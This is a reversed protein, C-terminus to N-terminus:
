AHSFSDEHCTCKEGNKPLDRPIWDPFPAMPNDLCSLLGSHFKRVLSPDPKAYFCGCIPECYQEHVNLLVDRTHVSVPVAPAVNKMHVFDTWHITPYSYFVNDPTHLPLFHCKSCLENVSLCILLSVLSVSARYGSYKIWVRRHDFSHFSM